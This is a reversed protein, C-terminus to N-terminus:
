LRRLVVHGLSLSAFTAVVYGFVGVLLSPVVLADWSKSGAMAAATTPGGVNANSAVLVEARHFRFIRGAALLFLLHVALQVCSFMFLVPARKLVTMISGGAGAVAFFVQMFFLGVASGARQYKAMQKPMLTAVTVVIATVIPVVGLTVPIIASIFSALTCMAGSLSVAIAADTLMIGGKATDETDDLSSNTDTWKDSEKSSYEPPQSVHRALLLLVVFYVAVVVNDATLAAAVMDAPAGTAEVVAVYNIAGGIHRATLAAAIKWASSGISKIPVLQWAALTGVMTAIVGACFVKLLQGTQLVVRRLDAGLLLLPVALPVLLSTISEYIPNALPILGLNSLILTCLTSVVPPSLSRGWSYRQSTLGLTAAGLLVTWIAFPTAAVAGSALGTMVSPPVNFSLSLASLVPRRYPATATQFHPKCRRSVFPVRAVLVHPALIPKCPLFATPNM